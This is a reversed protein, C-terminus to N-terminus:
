QRPWRHRQAVPFEPGAGVRHELGVAFLGSQVQGLLKAREREPVVIGADAGPLFDGLPDLLELGSDLGVACAVLRALM